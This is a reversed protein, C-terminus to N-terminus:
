KNPMFPLRDPNPDRQFSLCTANDPESHPISRRFRPLLQPGRERGIIALAGDTIGVQISGILRDKRGLAMPWNPFPATLGRVNLAEIIGQPLAAGIEDALGQRETLVEPPM